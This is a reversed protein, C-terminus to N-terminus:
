FLRFIKRPICSNNPGKTYSIEQLGRISLSTGECCFRAGLFPDLFERRKGLGALSIWLTQTKDMKGFKAIKESLNQFFKKQLSNIL